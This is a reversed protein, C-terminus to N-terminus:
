AKSNLVLKAAGYIGADNGLEALRIQTNRSAHFANKQFSERIPELLLNGSKSLGGGVIYVEPDVVASICAMAKGLLGMSYAIAEQALEDGEYACSCVDKATIKEVSRLRSDAATKKLLRGAVRTLGNASSYQELCGKKGCGCREEEDEIMPIHGIEGAAGFVGTVIEGDIIVGGGVGTGLTLMVANRCGKGSGRWVEGLAAVNGDNGTYADLGSLKKFEAAVNVVGWGLNVCKNVTGDPLVAGPIGFGVGLICEKNMGKASLFDSISRNIDPLLHVGNESTDSPIEWKKLLDGKESFLGFKVTTGGVDIGIVYKM